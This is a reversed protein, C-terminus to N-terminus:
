LTTSRGHHFFQGSIPQGMKYFAIPCMMHRGMLQKDADSFDVHHAVRAGCVSVGSVNHISHELTTTWRRNTARNACEAKCHAIEHFAVKALMGIHIDWWNDADTVVHSFVEAVAPAYDSLALFRGQEGGGATITQRAQSILTRPFVDRHASLEDLMTLTPRRESAATPNRDTGSTTLYVIPDQMRITLGTFNPAGAATLPIRHVRANIRLRNQANNGPIHNISEQMMSQLVATFRTLVNQRLQEACDTAGEVCTFEGSRGAGEPVTTPKLMCYYINYNPM